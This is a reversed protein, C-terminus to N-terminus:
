GSTYKLDIYIEVPTSLESEASIGSVISTFLFCIFLIGCFVQVPYLVLSLLLHSVAGALLDAKKLLVRYDGTM